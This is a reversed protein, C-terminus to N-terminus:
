SNHQETLQTNLWREEETLNLQKLLPHETKTTWATMVYTFIRTKWTWFTKRRTKLSIPANLDKMLQSVACVLLSNKGVGKKLSRLPLRIRELFSSMRTYGPNSFNKGNPWVSARVPPFSLNEFDPFLLFPSGKEVAEKEIEEVSM